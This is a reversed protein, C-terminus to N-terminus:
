HVYRKTVGHAKINNRYRGVALRTGCPSCRVELTAIFHAKAKDSVDLFPFEKAYSAWWRTRQKVKAADITGVDELVEPADMDPTGEDDSAMKAPLIKVIKAPLNTGFFNLLM